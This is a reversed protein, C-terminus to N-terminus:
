DRDPLGGSPAKVECGIMGEAVGAYRRQVLYFAKKRVSKRRDALGKLNYMKQRANLRRPTKFDYLLWPAIGAVKEAGLIVDFQNRYVEEQYEETWLEDASGHLGAVAEAGFESVVVPKGYDRDLLRALRDYGYYYWGFYENIGLIDVEAVLRDTVTFHELDVLCAASVLRTPDRGRATAILSKMFHFREDTDPNENGVAWVIVSARNRDRKILELLQNSANELTAPNDFELSWYVPIEEWLLIGLRDALRSVTESHPYHALRMFNCNMEKALVLTSLIEAETLARGTAVSEEHATVGRLFVPAGNLLIRTGEVGIRRFGIQDRICDSGASIRLEYLRPCDPSWLAPRAPIRADIRGEADTELEAEVLGEVSLHLNRVGPHSMSLVIRLSDETDVDLALSWDDIRIEPVVYLGVARFIGGYNFWDTFDSPVADRRRANSVWVLLRNTEEGPIKLTETIDACFPTYGGEHSAVHIGNVFVMSAYNAAGLRIITRDGPGAQPTPFTRFYWFSGEYLSYREEECNWCSPVTMEDWAEFEYDCPARRDFEGGAERYWRARIGNDYIDPGAHWEGDLTMTPERGPCLLTGAEARKARLLGETPNAHLQSYGPNEM